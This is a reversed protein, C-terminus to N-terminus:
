ALHNHDEEPAYIAQCQDCKLMKKFTHGKLTCEDAGCATLGQQFQEESIQAKCTGLCIYVPQPM